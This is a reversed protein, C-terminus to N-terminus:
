PGALPLLSEERALEAAYAMASEIHEPRLCPYNQLIEAHSAGEALATQAADIDYVAWHHWTGSPADPDDCLLVFSATMEPAAQWDFPPSLDEADCTFRRPIASGGSFANSSLQM